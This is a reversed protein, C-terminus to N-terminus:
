DHGSTRALGHSVGSTENGRQCGTHQERQRTTYGGGVQGLGCHDLDNRTFVLNLPTSSYEVLGDDHPRQVLGTERDGAQSEPKGREIWPRNNVGLRYGGIRKALCSNGPSQTMHGSRLSQGSGYRGTPTGYGLNRGRGTRAVEVNVDDEVIRHRHFVSGRDPIRGLTPAGDKYAVQGVPYELPPEDRGIMALTHLFECDRGPPHDVVHPQTYPDLSIPVEGISKSM